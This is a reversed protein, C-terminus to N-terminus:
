NSSSRELEVGRRGEVRVGVQEQRSPQEAQHNEISIGFQVEERRRQGLEVDEERRRAEKDQARQGHYTAAAYGAGVVGSAAGLFNATDMLSLRDTLETEPTSGMRSRTEPNFSAAFSRENQPPTSAVNHSSVNIVARRTKLNSASPWRTLRPPTAPLSKPKPSPQVTPHFTIKESLLPLSDHSLSSSLHSSSSGFCTRALVSSWIKRKSSQRRSDFPM